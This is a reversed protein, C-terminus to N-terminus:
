STKKWFCLLNNYVEKVELLNMCEYSPCNIGANTFCYQTIDPSCLLKKQVYNHYKGFPVSFEPNTPGYISYTAKGLLNAIYLPGSDNSVFLSCEKILRILESITRTFSLKLQRRKIEALVDDSILGEASVLEVQYEENLLSSLEIFKNLNWEKAKWGAFPHILIKGNSRFNVPFEKPLNTGEIPLYAKVVDLYRDILHPKSRIPVFVDYITTCYKTNMGVIEKAKSTVILSASTINGTLDFIIRPHLSKLIDRANKLAIRAGWFLNTQGLPIIFEDNFILNYIDKNNPFTLIYIKENSYYEYVVKIAPITFVTDGLRHLSIIIINGNSNKRILKRIILLLANSIFELFSNFIKIKELKKIIEL